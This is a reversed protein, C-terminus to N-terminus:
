DKKSGQDRFLHIINSFEEAARTAKYKHLDEIRAMKGIEDKQDDKSDVCVAAM